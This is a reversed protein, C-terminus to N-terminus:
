DRDKERRKRWYRDLGFWNLEPPMASRAREAPEPAESDIRRELGELFLERDGARSTEAVRLLEEAAEALHRAPEDAAGFHTLLLRAPSHEGIAAISEQWLGVDIDPPPTPLWITDSPPIRVGGVDGVFADGTDPDFYAVHHSAHGPTAIVLLGEVTEGGSLATVNAEPVPLVEGWLHDMQDGYLMGASRLLRSPDILHPAGVEHVYVRLDPFRSVLTGTAGAHDLHIHTLLIARPAGGEVSGLVTDITRAPGPDVILGGREWAGIVRDLGLHLTDILNVESM